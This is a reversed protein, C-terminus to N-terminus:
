LCMGMTACDGLVRTQSRLLDCGCVIHVHMCCGCVFVKMSLVCAYIHFCTPIVQVFVAQGVYMCVCMYACACVDLVRRFGGVMRVRGGDLPVCWVCVCVCVGLMCRSGSISAM